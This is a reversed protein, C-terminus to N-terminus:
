GPQGAPAAVTLTHIVYISTGAAIYLNQGDEGGFCLNGTLEPVRIRGLEAGAPSFVIVGIESSSWVSGNADVAIGDPFGEDIHAFLRGNKCRSGGQVDYV